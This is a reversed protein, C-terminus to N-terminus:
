PFILRAAFPDGPERSNALLSPERHRGANRQRAPVPRIRWIGSYYDLWVFKGLFPFITFVEAGCRVFLILV